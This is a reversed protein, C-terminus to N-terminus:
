LCGLLATLMEQLDKGEPTRLDLEDRREQLSTRLVAFADDKGGAASLLSRIKEQAGDDEAVLWALIIDLTQLTFLGAELRLSLREADALAKREDETADAEATYTPERGPVALARDVADVRTAYVARLSLLQDVKEYDKEVFKALLRIREPTDAPLLRLMAAFIALLHEAMPGAHLRSEKETDKKSKKKKNKSHKADEEVKMFLTFTPKLGGADVLTRCVDGAHLGSTAHDLLKLAPARSKHGEKLMLLCLEVGEAEVFKAKGKHPPPDDSTSRPKSKAQAQARADDDDVAAEGVLYTLAEFLDAMYEEENGREPDRRRYAAVLQLLIDVADLDVLRQCNAPSRYALTVLTEAAYQKNQSVTETDNENRQVRQLLWQLLATHRGLADAARTARLSCLNEAIGLAYYVGNRDVGDTDVAPDENLRALNSVLLGVLDADLLADVLATWQEDTADVDEDTLEGLIEIASIAIDTNDHALLGVLSAATGLRAFEPYLAPHEGLISLAKIDADLDAESAIFRTPDSAYRARLEANRNIRKEFNLATRRLWAADFAEPGDAVGTEGQKRGGKIAGGPGDAGNQDRGEVYDLISAEARTIGGGFFRGEEDDGDGDDEPPAAPGYDDGNGDEGDPPLSPGAEVDGTDDDVRAHRSSSGGNPTLKVSKYIENPDRVPEFKRKSPVGSKKFLEDISTM